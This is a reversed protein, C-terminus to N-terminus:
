RTLLPSIVQVTTTTNQVKAEEQLTGSKLARKMKMKKEKIKLEIKKRRARARM